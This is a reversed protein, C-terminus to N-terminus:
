KLSKAGLGNLFHLICVFIYNFLPFALCKELTKKKHGGLQLTGKLIM